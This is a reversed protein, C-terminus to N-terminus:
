LKRHSNSRPPQHLSQANPSHQEDYVSGLTSHQGVRPPRTFNSKRGASITSLNENRREKSDLIPNAQFLSSRMMRFRAPFKQRAMPKLAYNSNISENVSGRLNQSRQSYQSNEINYVKKVNTVSQHMKIKKKQLLNNEEITSM